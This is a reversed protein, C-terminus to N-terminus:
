ASSDFFNRYDDGHDEQGSFLPRIWSILNRFFVAGEVKM